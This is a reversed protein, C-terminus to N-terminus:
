VKLSSSIEFYSLSKLIHCLCKKPTHSRLFSHQVKQGEQICLPYQMIVLGSRGQKKPVMPSPHQLCLIPCIVPKLLYKLSKIKSHGELLITLLIMFFYKDM